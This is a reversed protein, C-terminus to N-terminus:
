DIEKATPFQIQHAHIRCAAQSPQSVAHQMVDMM